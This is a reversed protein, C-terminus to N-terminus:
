NKAHVMCHDHVEENYKMKEM